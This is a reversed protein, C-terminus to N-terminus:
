KADTRCSRGHRQVFGMFGSLHGLEFRAVSRRMATEGYEAIVLDGSGTDRCPGECVLVVGEGDGALWMHPPYNDYM